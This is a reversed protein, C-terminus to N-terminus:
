QEILKIVSSFKEKYRGKCNSLHIMRIMFIFLKEDLKEMLTDEGSMIDNVVILGEKFLKIFEVKDRSYLRSNMYVCNTYKIKSFVERNNKILSRLYPIPSYEFMNGIISRFCYINRRELTEILGLVIDKDIYEIYKFNVPCTYLIINRLKNYKYINYIIHEVFNSRDRYHYYVEIELRVLSSDWSYNNSFVCTRSVGKIVGNPELKDVKYEEFEISDLVNKIGSIINYRLDSPTNSCITMLFYIDEVYDGCRLTITKEVTDSIDM